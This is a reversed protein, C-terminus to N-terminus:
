PSLSVAREHTEPHRAGLSHPEHPPHAAGEREVVVAEDLDDLALGDRM